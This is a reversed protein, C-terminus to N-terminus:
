VSPSAKEGPRSHIESSQFQQLKRRLIEIFEATEEKTLPQLKAKAAQLEEGVQLRAGPIKRIVSEFHAPSFVFENWLVFTTVSKGSLLEPTPRYFNEVSDSLKQFIQTRLIPNDAFAPSDLMELIVKFNSISKEILAAPAATMAPVHVMPDHGSDFPMEGKIWRRAHTEHDVLKGGTDYWRIPVQFEAPATKNYTDTLHNLDTAKKPASLPIKPKRFAFYGFRGWFKPYPSVLHVAVGASIGDAFELLEVDRGTASKFSNAVVRPALPPLATARTKKVTVETKAFLHRAIARFRGICTPQDAHASTTFIASVVASILVANILFRRAQNKM